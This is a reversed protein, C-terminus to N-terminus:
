APLNPAFPNDSIVYRKKNQRLNVIGLIFYNKKACISSARGILKTARQGYYYSIIFM